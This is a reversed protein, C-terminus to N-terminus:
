ILKLEKAVVKVVDRDFYHIENGTKVVGTPEIKVTGFPDNMLMNLLPEIDDLVSHPFSKGSINVGFDDFEMILRADNDVNKIDLVEASNEVVEFHVM